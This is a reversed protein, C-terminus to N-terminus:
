MMRNQFTKRYTRGVPLELSDLKVSYSSWSSIRDLSIIYSRHIRLFQTTDLSEEFYRLSKRTILRGNVSHIIVYDKLGEFYIIDSTKVRHQQKDAYVMIERSEQEPRVPDWVPIKATRETYRSVAKLLRELSIPKVLYDIADLDFADAAYERYATTFIVAPPNALSKLLGMGTIEPMQIDLFMLDVPTKALAEFASVADRCRDVIHLTPIRSILLDLADLALPEDDVLICSINKM